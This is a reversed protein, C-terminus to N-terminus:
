KSPFLWRRKNRFQFSWGEFENSTDQQKWDPVRKSSFYYIMCIGGCLIGDGSGTMPCFFFVLKMVKIHWKANISELEVQSIQM